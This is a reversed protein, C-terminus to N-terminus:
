AITAAKNPLIIKEAGSAATLRMSSHGMVNGYADLIEVMIYLNEVQRLATITYTGDVGPTISVFGERSARVRLKQSGDGVFTSIKLQHSNGPQLQATSTDIVLAVNNKGTTRGNWEGGPNVTQNLVGASALADAQEATLPSIGSKPTSIVVPRGDEMKVSVPAKPTSTITTTRRSSSNGSSSSSGGGSSRTTVTISCALTVGDIEAIITTKGVGVARVLGNDSVTAVKENESIWVIDKEEVGDPLNQVKLKESTGSKLSLSTKNLSPKKEEGAEEVTVDCDLETGDVNATVAASGAALATVKGDDDVAAVSEDSSSWSIIAGPTTNQVRITATDGIELTLSTKDLRPAGPDSISEFEATLSVDNKPMNFVAPNKTTSNLTTGDVTWGAFRYESDPTATVSIKTGPAYNGSITGSVSGGTTTNVSLFPLSADGKYTVDIVIDQQVNSITFKDGSLEIAEGNVTVQDLTQGEPVRVTYEASDGDEIFGPGSIESSDFSVKRRNMEFSDILKPSGGEVAYTEFKLIGNELKLVSFVPNQKPYYYNLWSRSTDPTYYKSGTSTGGIVYQTGLPYSVKDGGQMVTRSPIHDHGSLVLDVKLEDFVTHLERVDAENYNLPYASRHMLVIKYKKKSNGFVERMKSIQETFDPDYDFSETDFNFVAIDGIEFFYNRATEYTGNDPGYFYSTFTQADFYSDHNGITAAWIGSSLLGGMNADIAQWDSYIHGNDAVDGALLSLDVNPYLSKLANATDPFKNFSGQVDGYFAITLDGSLPATKFSKIESYSSGQGVKYYYTTDPELDTIHAGWAKYLREYTNLTTVIEKESAEFRTGDSLDDKKGIIVEGSNVALSTQWSIGVEHAPNEGTTVSLMAPQEAGLSEFVTITAINSLANSDDKAWVKFRTDPPYAGFIGTTVKGDAGTKETFEVPQNDSDTVILAVNEAPNGESDTLTFVTNKGVTSGMWSLTYKFRIEQDYGELFIDTGTIEGIEKVIAKNVKIGTQGGSEQSVKFTLKVLPKSDDKKLKDMGKLTYRVTGAEKDIEQQVITLRDDTSSAELSVFRPNYNLDFKFEQFKDYDIANVIYDFTSGAAAKEELPKTEVLNVNYGEVIFSWEKFFKNGANDEVRYKIRNVGSRLRTLASPVYSIRVSGDQMFEHQVNDMVRGNIWLKTRESNIGTYAEGGRVPDQVTISIEPQHGVDIADQEPLVDTGEVLEPAVTDDNKFDYVARLGDVYITGKKYNNPTNKTCLLRVGWKLVYPFQAASPIDTEIYKWGVWDVYTDGVYSSPALQIRFWSGNGDGYVWCGIAKPQGELQLKGSPGVEIAVTGTAPKTAFDYDIRLSGDGTKVFREDYNVSVNGSGGNGPNTYQWKWGADELPVEFDNLPVPLKGIEVPLAVEYDKYSIKLSGTGQAQAATFTGDKSISGLADDSLQFTLAESTLVVPIGNYEASFSMQTTAGPAVSLISRDTNLKTIQDVTDVTIEGSSGNPGQVIVKGSHAGEAASLVGDESIEGIGGQTSYVPKSGSLDSYHYNNDTAGITFKMKGNELLLVKNSYGEAIDPYVHLKQVPNGEVPSNDAVFLLANSNAREHGDSPRNLIQSNKKGPLTATITSSGGGDFNFVNVCGLGTMYDVIERFTLGAAFGAQRGDCQFLVVTGDAKTGFVTRPHIAPDGMLGENITGNKVLVHFIGLAQVAKSWDVDDNANQTNITIQEDKQLASLAAYQSSESHSSLVIQGPLISTSNENPNEDVQNVSVVTATIEQGIRIGSYGPTTVKLVVEVGPQTSRTTKDFQETLLYVNQTNLKREKNVHDIKISASPSNAIINFDTKGFLVTGDSKFGVGESGNSTSILIGDKIMLGNSVGNSTDYADGNIAFIVKKGEQETQSVMESMIDGGMVYDGYNLIPKVPSTQPNFETTYIKQRGTANDSLIHNLTVGEFIDRSWKFKVDGVGPNVAASVPSATIVSSTTIALVLLFALFNRLHKEIM